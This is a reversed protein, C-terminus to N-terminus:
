RFWVFFLHFISFWCKNWVMWIHAFIETTGCRDNLIFCHQFHERIGSCFPHGSTKSRKMRAQPAALVLWALAGGGVWQNKKIQWWISKNYTQSALWWIFRTFEPQPMGHLRRMSPAIRRSLFLQLTFKSIIPNQTELDNTMKAEQHDSPANNLTM